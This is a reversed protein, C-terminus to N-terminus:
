GDVKEDYSEVDVGTVRHTDTMTIADPRTGKIQRIRALLDREISAFEEDSIDGLELQMQAELLRDRLSTDDSAEADAASAIKELVFRLGGVLLSDLIFM